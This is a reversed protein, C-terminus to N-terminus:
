PRANLGSLVSALPLIKERLEQPTCQKVQDITVSQALHFPGSQTRRLAELTAFCGLKEGLDHALTRVYTGKSVRISFQILDGEKGSINFEHVTAPRPEREVEKGQRALKYLRVGQHKVASVMPPTQMIEGTFELSAKQVDELTIQSADGEGIVKGTKDQSDTKVGLRMLGEYTKDHGSLSNSEKTARGILLVVLGTAMPDLTGAHGVKDIKFRRRVFHCVDHSTWDPAKDVPLIGDPFFAPSAPNM